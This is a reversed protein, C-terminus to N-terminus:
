YQLLKIHNWCNGKLVKILNAFLDRWVAMKVRLSKKDNGKWCVKESIKTLKEKIEYYAM